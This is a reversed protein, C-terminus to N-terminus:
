ETILFKEMAEVTRNLVMRAPTTIAACAAIPYNNLVHNIM